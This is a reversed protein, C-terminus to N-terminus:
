NGTSGRAKRYMASARPLPRVSGGEDTVSLRTRLRQSAAREETDKMERALEASIREWSQDGPIKIELYLDQRSDDFKVHRRFENGYRQKLKFGHSQLVNFTGLLYQPIDM